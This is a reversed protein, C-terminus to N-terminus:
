WVAAIIPRHFTDERGPTPDEGTIRRRKGNFDGALARQTTGTAIRVAVIVEAAVDSKAFNAIELTLFQDVTHQRQDVLMARKV